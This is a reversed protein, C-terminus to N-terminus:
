NTRINGSQTYLAITQINSCGQGLINKSIQFQLCRQRNRETPHRNMQLSSMWLREKPFSTVKRHYAEHLLHSFCQMRDDTSNM